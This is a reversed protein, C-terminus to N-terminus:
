MKVFDELVDMENDVVRIKKSSTKDEISVLYATKNGVTVETVVIIDFDYFSSKVLHRVERPLHDEGYYRFTTLWNGKKDYDVRNQINNQKFKAIFGDQVIHWNENTVTKFAKSFDRLAKTNVLNKKDAGSFENMPQSNQLAILKDPELNMKKDQAHAALATIIGAALAFFTKKM